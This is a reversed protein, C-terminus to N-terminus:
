RTLSLTKVKNGVVFFYNGDVTEFEEILNEDGIKQSFDHLLQYNSDFDKDHISGYAGVIVRKEGVNVLDDWGNIQTITTPNQTMFTNISSIRPNDTILSNINGSSDCGWVIPQGQYVDLTGQILRSTDVGKFSQAAPSIILTDLKQVISDFGCKGVEVTDGYQYTFDLYDLFAAYHMGLKRQRAIWESLAVYFEKSNEDLDYLGTAQKFQKTLYILYQKM